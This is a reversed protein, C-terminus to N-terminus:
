EIKNPITTKNIIKTPIWELITKEVANKTGIAKVAIM